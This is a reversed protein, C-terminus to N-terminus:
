RWRKWRFRKGIDTNKSTDKVRQQKKCLGGKVSVLYKKSHDSTDTKFNSISQLSRSLM